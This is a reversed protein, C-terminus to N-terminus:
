KMIIKNKNSRNLFYMKIILKIRIRTHITEKIKVDNINNNNFFSNLYHERTMNNRHKM